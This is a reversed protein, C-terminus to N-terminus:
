HDENEDTEQPVLEGRFAKALLSQTLQTHETTLKSHLSEIADIKAFATELIRVIETQESISCLPIVLSKIIALNLNPQVGGAAIKRIELYNYELFHKTFRRLTDNEPLIIAALAQNTAANIKLETVQGRTKGEGYMAMLLTGKPFVSANTEAIALDTIFEKAEIVYESNVCSSTVWPIKADLYYKSSGRKPTAGTGLIGISELNISYWGPVHSETYTIEPERYKDEWGKPPTKSKAKYKQLETKQWQQQREQRLRKLLDQASEHQIGQAKQEARWKATLDGRFASALLSARYDALLQPLKALAESSSDIQQQCDDLKKVIRKQQSTSVIPIEMRSLDDKNFGNQASRSLLRLPAQFIESKLLGEVWKTMFANKDFVVKALAVNYAGSKGSVIRGLSAGYRAILIDDTECTKWKPLDPIFVINNDNKFDRIQLLRIYGEKSEYIFEKKPPQTGGQVNFVETFPVTKLDSM